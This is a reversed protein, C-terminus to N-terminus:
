AEKGTYDIGNARLIHQIHPRSFGHKKTIEDYIATKAGGQETLQTFMDVVAKWKKDRLIQTKTKIM